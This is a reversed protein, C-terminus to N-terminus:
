DIKKRINEKIENLTYTISNILDDKSEFEKGFVIVIEKKSVRVFNDGIQTESSIHEIEQKLANQSVKKSQKPLYKSPREVHEIIAKNSTKFRKRYLVIDLVLRYALQLWGLYGIISAVITTKITEWSQKEIKDWLLWSVVGLGGLMFITLSVYLLEKKLDRKVKSIIM